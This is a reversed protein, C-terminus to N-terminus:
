VARGEISLKTARGGAKAKRRMQDLKSEMRHREGRGGAGGVMDVRSKPQVIYDLAGPLPIRARAVFGEEGPKARGKQIEISVKRRNMDQERQLRQQRILRTENELEQSRSYETESKYENLVPRSWREILERAARKNSPTEEELKYLFMVVMGLKSNKLQQRRHQLATDIPLQLILKLVATRIEENPLSGDPLPEIWAKLTELLGVDLFFPHLFRNALMTEVERLMKLKHIAPQGQTNAIMDQEVAQDMKEKFSTVTMMAEDPAIGGKKRGRASGSELLKDVLNSDEEKDQELYTLNDGGGEDEDEEDGGAWPVGTEEDDVVGNEIEYDVFQRDEETVYINAEEDDGEQIDEDDLNIEQQEGRQRKYPQFGDSGLVDAEGDEELNRKDALQALRERLSSMQFLTEIYFTLSTLLYTLLCAYGAVLM